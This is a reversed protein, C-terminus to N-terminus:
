PKLVFSGEGGVLAIRGRPGTSYVCEVASRGFPDRVSGVLGDSEVRLGGLGFARRREVDVFVDGFRDRAVAAAYLAAGMGRPITVTSAPSVADPEPLLADPTFGHSEPGFGAFRRPYDAHVAANEPCYMLAFVGGLAAAGREFDDVDGSVRYYDLFLPAFLAHHTVSWEGDANGAGFGGFADAPCGPPTWLQQYLSLEDLCARGAALHAEQRFRHYAALLAEACWFLATASAPWVGNRGPADSSADGAAARCDRWRAEIVPGKMLREVARRAARKWEDRDPAHRLVDCFFSVCLALDCCDRSAAVPAGDPEVWAPFGGDREQLRCLRDAFAPVRRQAEPDGGTLDHWELLARATAAADGVCCAHESVGAPRPRGNTWRASEASPGGPGTLRRAPEEPPEATYTSPFLGDTMPAALTFATAARARKELSPSGLRRACRLLANAVRQTNDLWTNCAAFPGASRREPAPLGPCQGAEVVRAPAECVTDDVRFRHWVVRGWREPSFMWQLAHEIYTELPAPPPGSEILRPRGRRSWLWASAQRFPNLTDHRRTGALIHLRARVSEGGYDGSVVRHRGEEAPGHDGLGFTVVGRAHDYDLWARAGSELRAALDDLDPLVTLVCQRDAIVIAGTHLFRGPMVLGPAPALAPTWARQIAGLSPEIVIRVGEGAGAAPCHGSVLLAGDRWDLALGSTDGMGPRPVPAFSGDFLANGTIDTVRLEEVACACARAMAGFHRGYLAFERDTHELVPAGDVDVAVSVADGDGRCTVRLAYARDYEVAFPQACLPEAPRPVRALVVRGARGDLLAGYCLRGAMDSCLALGAAEGARLTVRAEYVAGGPKLREGHVVVRTEPNPREFLLTDKHVVWHPGGVDIEASARLLPRKDVLLEGRARGKQKWACRERTDGGANPTAM